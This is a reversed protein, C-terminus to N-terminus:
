QPSQTFDRNDLSITKFRGYVFSSHAGAFLLYYISLESATDIKKYFKLLLESGEDVTGLHRISPQKSHDRSVCHSTFLPGQPRCLTDLVRLTLKEFRM